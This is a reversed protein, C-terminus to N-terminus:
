VCRWIKISAIGGTGGYVESTTTNGYTTSKLGGAGGTGLVADQNNGGPQAAVVGDNTQWDNTVSRSSAGGGGGGGGCIIELIQQEGGKTLSINNLLVRSAGGGGGAGGATAGKDNFGTKDNGLGPTGAGGGGGGSGWSSLTRTQYRGGTGAAGLGGGAGGSGGITVNDNISISQTIYAHSWYSVTSGEGGHPGNAGGGGASPNTRYVGGGVLEQYAQVRGGGDAGGNIGLGPGGYERLVNDAPMINTDAGGGGASGYIHESRGGRGGPSNGRSKKDGKYEEYYPGAGGQGPTGASYLIASAASASVIFLTKYYGGAAGDSGDVHAGSRWSGGGGGGGAGKVEIEYWGPQSIDLGGSKLAAAAYNNGLIEGGDLLVRGAPAEDPVYGSPYVHLNGNEDTGVLTNPVNFSVAKAKGEADTSILQKVGPNYSKVLKLGDADVGDSVILKNTELENDSIVTNDDNLEGYDKNPDKIM